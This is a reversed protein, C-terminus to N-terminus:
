DFGSVLSIHQLHKSKEIQGLLAKDKEENETETVLVLVERNEAPHVNCGELVSVEEILLTLENQNPILIYSKIPM